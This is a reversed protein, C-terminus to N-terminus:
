VMHRCCQTTHQMHTISIFICELKGKTGANYYAQSHKPLVDKEWWSNSSVASKRQSRSTLWALLPLSGVRIVYFTTHEQVFGYHKNHVNRHMQVWMDRYRDKYTCITHAWETYHLGSAGVQPHLELFGGVLETTLRYLAEDGEPVQCDLCRTVRIQEPLCCLSIASVSPMMGKHPTKSGTKPLQVDQCCIYSAFHIPIPIAAKYLRKIYNDSYLTM